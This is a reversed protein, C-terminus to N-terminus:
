SSIARLISQYVTQYSVNHERALRACSEYEPMSRVVVGRELAQKILAHGYPTEVSIQRRSLTKRKVEAYRLGLTSSHKFLCRQVAEFLDEHILMSLKVAPRNKKM